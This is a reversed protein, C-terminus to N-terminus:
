LGIGPQPRAASVPPVVPHTAEAEDVTAGPLPEASRTGPTGSTTFSGSPPVGVVPGAAVMAPDDEVAVPLTSGGSIPQDDEQTAAQAARTFRGAVLGAALAGLLFTGPRRRAFGRVEELLDRPERDELQTALSRARDAAQRTLDTALGSRDSAMDSLDDSFTRVTGALRQQQERSQEEIQTGVQSFLERAQHRAEGAVQGAEERATGVVHRGENAAAGAVDQAKERAGTAGSPSGSTQTTTM